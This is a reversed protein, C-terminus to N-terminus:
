EGSPTKVRFERRAFWFSTLIAVGTGVGILTLLSEITSPLLDMESMGWDEKCRALQERPLGLQRLALTRVYYVVTLKRGVFEINALVAEIAVIYTIGAILPWRTFLGLFGFLACYGFQALAMVAVAMGMRPLVDTGFEPKGAYIALYLATVATSVLVATVCLTALLKTLYLQWKPISRLLLYTLTQEEVEDSIVGAAYLLATLPALGHPLLTFVLAFELEESLAPRALNRLVLALACPLLYLFGLVLMRRGHTHQRVTLAFLAALASPGATWSRGTPPLTEATM